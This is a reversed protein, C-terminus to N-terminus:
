KCSATSEGETIYCPIAINMPIDERNIIAPVMQAFKKGLAKWPLNITTPTMGGLFYEVIPDQDFTICSIDKPIQIEHKKILESIHGMVWYAGSILATIKHNKIYSRLMDVSENNPLVPLWLGENIKKDLHCEQMGELYGKYRDFTWWGTPSLVQVFGIRQHGLSALYKVADRSGAVSDEYFNPIGLEPARTAALVCPIDWYKSLGIFPIHSLPPGICLFIDPRNKELRKSINQPQITHYGLFEVIMNKESAVEDIGHLIETYYWTSFRSPIAPPLGSSLVAIRISSNESKQQPLSEDSKQAVSQNRSKTLITKIIESQCNGQRYEDLRKGVYTGKGGHRTIWGEEQLINLARRVTTRSRGTILVLEKDILFKSGVEFDGSIIYDILNKVLAETSRYKPLPVTLKFEKTLM